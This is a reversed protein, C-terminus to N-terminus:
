EKKDDLSLKSLKWGLNLELSPGVSTDLRRNITQSDRLCLIGQFNKTSDVALGIIHSFEIDNYELKGSSQSDFAFRVISSYSTELKHVGSVVTSVMEVSVSCFLFHAHASVLAFEFSLFKHSFTPWYGFISSKAWNTNCNVICLGKKHLVHFCRKKSNKYCYLLIIKECINSLKCRM